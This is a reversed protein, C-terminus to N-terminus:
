YDAAEKAVKKVEEITSIINKFRKLNEFKDVFEDTAVKLVLSGIADFFTSKAKELVPVRSNIVDHKFHRVYESTSHDDIGDILEGRFLASLRGLIRDCLSSTSIAGFRDLYIETGVHNYGPPVRTVVDNNNRCRFYKDKLPTGDNLRADFGAAASRGLLKPSGITYIGAIDLNDVYSLRAAAVTALAGGLSHGAIYLKRNKGKENYLNQIVKRMNGRVDWVSEVGENFGEHVDGPAAPAGWVEACARPNMDINTAWDTMEKTGRFVVAILDDNAAVFAETDEINDFVSRKAAKDADFWHFRDFGLGENTSNGKVLGKVQQEPQYAMKCLSAFFYANQASFKATKLDPKMEVKVIPASTTRQPMAPVADSRAFNAQA